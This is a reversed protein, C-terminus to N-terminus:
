KAAYVQSASLFVHYPGVIQPLIMVIRSSSLKNNIQIIGAIESPLLLGLSKAVVGGASPGIRSRLCETWAVVSLCELSRIKALYSSTDQSTTPISRSRTQFPPKSQAIQTTPYQQHTKALYHYISNGGHDEARVLPCICVRHGDM